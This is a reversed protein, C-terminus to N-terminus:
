GNLTEEIHLVKKSHNCVPHYQHLRGLSYKGQTKKVPDMQAMLRQQVCASIQGPFEVTLRRGNGKVAMGLGQKCGFGGSQEAGGFGPLFQQLPVPDGMYVGVGHCIRDHGHGPLGKKGLQHFMAGRSEDAAMVEPEAMPPFAGRFFETFEAPLLIQGAHHHRLLIDAADADGTGVDTLLQLGAVHGGGDTKQAM